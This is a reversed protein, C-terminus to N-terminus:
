RFQLLRNGWNHLFFSVAFGLHEYLLKSWLFIHCTTPINGFAVAIGIQKMVRHGAIIVPISIIITFIYYFIMATM